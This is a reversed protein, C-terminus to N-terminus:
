QINRSYEKEGGQLREIGFAVDGSKQGTENM